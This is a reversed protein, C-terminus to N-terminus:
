DKCYIDGTYGDEECTVEKKDRIETHQHGTAPITEVWTKNCGEDTCHYTKEGDETCTAEKSVTGQDWHHSIM